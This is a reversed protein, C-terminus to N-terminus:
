ERGLEGKPSPTVTVRYWGKLGTSPLLDKWGHPDAELASMGSAPEATSPSTAAGLLAMVTILSLSFPFSFRHTFSPM